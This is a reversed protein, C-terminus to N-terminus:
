VTGNQEGGNTFLPPLNYIKRYQDIYICAYAEEAPSLATQKEDEYCTIKRAADVSLAFPSGVICYREQDNYRLTSLAAGISHICRMSYFSLRNGPEFLEAIKNPEATQSGPESDMAAVQLAPSFFPVFCPEEAFLNKAKPYCSLMQQYFHLQQKTQETMPEQWLVSATVYGNKETVIGDFKLYGKQMLYSATYGARYTLLGFTEGTEKSRFVLRLNTMTDPEPVLELTEGVPVESLQKDTLGNLRLCVRGSAHLIGDKIRVNKPLARPDFDTSDILRFPINHQKAYKEASSDSFGYLVTNQCLSYKEITVTRNAFIMHPYAYKANIYECGESIICGFEMGETEISFVRVGKQTIIPPAYDDSSDYDSYQYAYADVVSITSNNLSPHENGFCVIKKLKPCDDFADDAIGMCVSPIVLQKITGCCIRKIQYASVMGLKDLLSEIDEQEWICDFEESDPSHVDRIVLKDNRFEICNPVDASGTCYPKAYYSVLTEGDFEAKEEGIYLFGTFRGIFPKKKM